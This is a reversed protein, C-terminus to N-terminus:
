GLCRTISGGLVCVFRRVLAVLLVSLILGVVILNLTLGTAYKHDEEVPETRENSVGQTENDFSKEEIDTSPTSSSTQM